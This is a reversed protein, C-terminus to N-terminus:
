VEQLLAEKDCCDVIIQKTIFHWTPALEYRVRLKLDLMPNYWTYEVAVDSYEATPEPLSRSSFTNNNFTINFHDASLSVANGYAPRVGRLGTSCFSVELKSNNLLGTQPGCTAQVLAWQLVCIYIHCNMGVNM